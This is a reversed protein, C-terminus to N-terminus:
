ARTVNINLGRHKRAADRELNREGKIVAARCDRAARRAVKEGASAGNRRARM